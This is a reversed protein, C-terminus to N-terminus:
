EAENKDHDGRYARWLFLASLLQGVSFPMAMAWPSFALDGKAVALCALGTTMYWFGVLTMSSPLSACAAFVGLSLLLQWLGPLMWLAEPAFQRIVITLLVGGVGAPLFREAAALVMDDALGGHAKHSRRIAETGIIAAAFAGSLGWLAIYTDPALRPKELVLWQVLGAAVAVVATAALAEPGYGRFIATRAMQDRVTAIDALAKELDTM